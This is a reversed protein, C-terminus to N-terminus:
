VVNSFRRTTHRFASNKTLLAGAQDLEQRIVRLSTSLTINAPVQLAAIEELAAALLRAREVRFAAQACQTCRSM